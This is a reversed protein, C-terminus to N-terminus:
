TVATNGGSKIWGKYYAHKSSYRMLYTHSSFCSIVFTIWAILNLQVDGADILILM